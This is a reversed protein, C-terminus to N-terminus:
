VRARARFPAVVLVLELAEDLEARAVGAAQRALLTTLRTVRVVALARAAGALLLALSVCLTHPSLTVVLRLAGPVLMVKIFGKTSPPRIPGGVFRFRGRTGGRGSAM